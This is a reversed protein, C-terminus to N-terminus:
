LVPGGGITVTARPIGKLVDESLGFARSLTEEPIGALIESLEITQPEENSLVVLFHLPADGINEIWHIYGQPVFSIDGADLELL